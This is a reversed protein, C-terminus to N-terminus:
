IDMRCRRRFARSSDGVPLRHQRVRGVPLRPRRRCDSWCCTFGRLHKSAISGANAPVALLRRHRVDFAVDTTLQWSDKAAPEVYEHYVDDTFGIVTCLDVGGLPYAFREEAGERSLFGGCADIFAEEGESHRLFGGRRVLIVAYGVDVGTPTWRAPGGDARVDDIIMGPMAALRRRRLRREVM